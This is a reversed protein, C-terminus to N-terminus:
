NSSLYIFTFATFKRGEETEITIRYTEFPICFEINQSGMNEAVKLIAENSNLLSLSIKYKTNERDHKYTALIRAEEITDYFMITPSLEIEAAQINAINTGNSIQEFNGTIQKILVLYKM